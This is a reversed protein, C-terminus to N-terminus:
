SMRGQSTKIRIQGITRTHTNPTSHGFGIERCWHCIKPVSILLEAANYVFARTGGFISVLLCVEDLKITINKFHVFLIRSFSDHM